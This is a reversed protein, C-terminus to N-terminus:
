KEHKRVKVIRRRKRQPKTQIGNGQANKSIGAIGTELDNRVKNEYPHAYRMTTKPSTHRLVAQASYLSGDRAIYTAVTHRIDKLRAGDLKAEKCIAKWPKVLTTLHQGALKGPFVWKGISRRAISQLLEVAPGALFLTAEGTKTDHLTATQAPLDIDEWRLKIIEGPRCGTFFLLLIADYSAIRMQEESRLKAIARFIDTQQADSFYVRRPTEKNMRIRRAPNAGPAILEWDEAKNLMAKVVSLMRNARIPADSMSRHLNEIDRRALEHIKIHGIKPVVRTELVSKYERFSSPALTPKATDRLYMEVLNAVNPTNKISQKADAPDRGDYIEAWLERAWRRAATITMEPFKGLTYKRPRGAITRYRLLFVKRGTPMVKIFLGDTKPDNIWYDKTRPVAENIAQSNFPIKEPREPNRFRRVPREPCM